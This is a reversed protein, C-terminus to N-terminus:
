SRSPKSRLGDGDPNGRVVNRPNPEGKLTKGGRSPRETVPAVKGEQVQHDARGGCDSGSGGAVPGEPTQEDLRGDDSV